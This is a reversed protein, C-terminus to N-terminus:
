RYRKWVQLIGRLMIIPLQNESDRGGSYRFTRGTLLAPARRATGTTWASHFKISLSGVVNVADNDQIWIAYPRGGTAARGRYGHGIGPLWPPNGRCIFFSQGQRIYDM